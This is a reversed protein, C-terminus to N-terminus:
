VEPSPKPPELIIARQVIMASLGALGLIVGFIFFGSSFSGSFERLWGFGFPLLFGGVGGAAGILGSATGMIAKFRSSAVQFVVGNGFGLGFMILFVLSVIWEFGSVNALILSGVMIFGFLKPLLRLGGIRDAWFGGIPRAGSGALASLATLTGATVMDVQLQDHFFIPLYSSMGVFGGFTVGYLGCLWVMLKDQIGQRLLHFVGGFTPSHAQRQTSSSSQVLWSFLFLTSFVPLLMIGFVQHWGYTAALRPAFFSALLVGSNGVAAVGMALGQHAPPYAQSALPLAIAFSAGAWGLIFGVFLMEHYSSGAQWGLFLAIAELVLIAVGLTKAGLWDAMPGVPIRLFAGGLLPLGVLLGTQSASLGFEESIPISLAGVLLWVMFSVEFHLWAGLLSPWHGSRLGRLGVSFM